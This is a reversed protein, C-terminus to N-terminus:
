CQFLDVILMALSTVKDLLWSAIHPALAFFIGLGAAQCILNASAGVACGAVAGILFVTALLNTVVSTLGVIISLGLQFVLLAVILPLVAIRLSLKLLKMM